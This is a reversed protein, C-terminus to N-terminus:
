CTVQKTLQQKEWPENRRLPSFPTLNMPIQGSQSQTLTLYGTLIEKPRKSSFAKTLFAKKVSRIKVKLSNRLLRLASWVEPERTEHAKKRLANRKLQLDRIEPDALWPAPPRTVKVRKLPAHRDICEKVLSNLLQVM